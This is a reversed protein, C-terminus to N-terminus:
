SRRFELPNVKYWGTRPTLKAQIESTKQPGELLFLRSLTINPGVVTGVHSSDVPTTLSPRIKSHGRKM